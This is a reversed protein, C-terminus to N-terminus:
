CLSFEADKALVTLEQYLRKQETDRAVKEGLHFFFAMNAKGADLSVSFEGAMQLLHKVGKVKCGILEKTNVSLYITLLEDIRRAFHPEDRVYYTLFDGDAFYHPVPRFGQCQHTRLYENLTQEM